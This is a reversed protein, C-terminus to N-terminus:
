ASACRRRLHARRRRQVPMREFDVPDDAAVAYDAGARRALELGGTVYDNHIHTELVLECRLGREDLLAEVRDLDRQPDVVVAVSGDHAVYSRDGLESTELVEVHLM